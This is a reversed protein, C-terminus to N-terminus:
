YWVASNAEFNDTHMFCFLKLKQQAFYIHRQAPKSCVLTIESAELHRQWGETLYSVCWFIQGIWCVYLCKWVFPNQKEAQKYKKPFLIHITKSYNFIM